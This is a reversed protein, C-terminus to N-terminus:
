RSVYQTHSQAVMEPFAHLHEVQCKTRSSEM